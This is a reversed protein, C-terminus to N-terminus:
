NQASMLLIGIRDPTSYVAVAAILEIEVPADRPLEAVGVASRAHRGVEAFIEVLLTSAADLVKPQANFGPASAVFGTVKLVRTVRELEGLEAQLCALAQLVCVRAAHEAQALSIKAGVQGCIRVEGEEKPLQGSVYAVGQHVVVPQYNFAPVAPDPLVYGLQQLRDNVTM